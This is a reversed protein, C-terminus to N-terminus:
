PFQAALGPGVTGTSNLYQRLAGSRWGRVNPSLLDAVKALFLVGLIEVKLFFDRFSEVRFRSAILQRLFNGAIVIHDKSEPVQAAVRTGLDGGGDFQHRACLNLGLKIQFVFGLGQVALIGFCTSAALARFGLALIGLDLIRYPFPM